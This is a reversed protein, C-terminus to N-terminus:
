KLHRGHNQTAVALRYPYLRVFSDHAYSRLFYLKRRSGHEKGYCLLYRDHPFGAYYSAVGPQTDRFGMALAIPIFIAAFGVLKMFVALMVPKIDSVASKLDFGAGMAMLGLPTALKSVNELTSVMIKPTPLRLLSWFLGLKKFVVGLVMTLFIPVTANLSFILNEM